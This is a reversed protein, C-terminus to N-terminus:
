DKDEDDGKKDEEVGLYNGSADFLLEMETDEKENEVEVEYSTVGDKEVKFAEDLKFDSHNAAVYESVTFPLEDLEMQAETELVKGESDYLVGMEKKNMRFEAEYEGDEVEWKVKKAEPYAKKFNDLVVQPVEGGKQGTEDCGIVTSAIFISLVFQILKM